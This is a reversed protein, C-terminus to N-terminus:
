ETDRIIQWVYVLADEGQNIHTQRYCDIAREREREGERERGREQVRKITCINNAIM